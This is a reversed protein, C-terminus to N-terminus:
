SYPLANINALPRNSNNTQLLASSSINWNNLNNQRNNRQNNQNQHLNLAHISGPLWRQCRAEERRLVLNRQEPPFKCVTCIVKAM